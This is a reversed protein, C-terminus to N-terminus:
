EPEATGARIYEATGPFARHWLQLVESMRAAYHYHAGLGTRLEAQYLFHSAATTHEYHCQAGMPLLYVFDPQGFALRNYACATAEEGFARLAELKNCLPTVEPNETRAREIEDDAFYTGVPTLSFYKTGTRHRNLDRIDAIPLARWGFRVSTRHLASGFFDYRSRHFQMASILDADSIGHPTSVELFPCPEVRQRFDLSPAHAAADSQCQFEFARGSAHSEDFRAHKTLRPAVKSLQDLLLRALEHCEELPDSALHKILSIWGRASMLQMVNTKAAMPLFYRARDFAFNRTLREVKRLDKPETSNLLQPPLRLLSPAAKSIATWLELSQNYASFCHRIHANSDGLTTNKAVDNLFDPTLKIYRTSSEQGGATPALSWIRLALWISLQDIFMAVPVMDAISQHGYDIMKFISDVATDESHGSVHSLIVSLGEGNRSYRAGCAALMEPTLAPANAEILAQTPKIGV